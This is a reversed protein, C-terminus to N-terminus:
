CLKKSSYFCCVQRSTVQDICDVPLLGISYVLNVCIFFFLFATSDCLFRAIDSTIEKRFILSNQQLDAKYAM